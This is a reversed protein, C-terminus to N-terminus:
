GSYGDFWKMSCEGEWFDESYTYAFKSKGIGTPGCIWIVKPIPKEIDKM